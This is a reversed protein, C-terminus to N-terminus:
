QQLDKKAKREVLSVINDVSSFNAINIDANDVVIDFETEVFNLLKMAFLSNVFGLKFINDSDSFYAEDDFVVLNSEIYARIKTNLEM